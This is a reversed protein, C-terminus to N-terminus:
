KTPQDIWKSRTEANKKVIRDFKIIQKRLEQITPLTTTGEPEDAVNAFMDLIRQTSITFSIELRLTLVWESTSQLPLALPFLPFIFLSVEQTENTGGGFFRGGEEDGEDAEFTEEAVGYVGDDDDEEEEPQQQLGAPGVEPEDEVTAAKGKGKGEFGNSTSTSAPRNSPIKSTNALPDSSSSPQNTRPRKFSQQQHDSSSSSSNSTTSPYKRKHASPLEPVKFVGNM